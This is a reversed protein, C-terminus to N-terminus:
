HRRGPPPSNRGVPHRVTAREEVAVAHHLVQAGQASGYSPGVADVVCPLDDAKGRPRVAHAPREEVGGSLAHLLDAGQAAGFSTAPGDCM